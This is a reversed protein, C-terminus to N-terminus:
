LGPMLQWLTNAIRWREDGRVLHIYEYYVATRVTVSAINEYVDEVVIELRGDGVDEDGEGQGTLEVMRDKTTIKLEATGRRKVLNPHLARDMRAPDAEYWSEFYDRVTKTIADTDM